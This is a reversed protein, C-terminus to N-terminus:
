GFLRALRELAKRAQARNGEGPVVLVQEGDLAALSARAVDEAALPQAAGPGPVCLAQVSVPTGALEAQLGACFRNVFAGCAAAVPSGATDVLSELASVNVIAGGGRELMFPVAARCLTVMAGCGADMADRQCQVPLRTFGGDLPRVAANVLMQLPGRQRLAELARTVGEVCTLDAGLPYVGALDGLGAALEGPPVRDVAVIRAGRAALQRCFARGLDSAAGTVMAVGDENFDM